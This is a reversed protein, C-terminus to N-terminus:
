SATKEDGVWWKFRGSLLGSDLPRFNHGRRCSDPPRAVISIVWSCAARSSHSPLVEIAYEPLGNM